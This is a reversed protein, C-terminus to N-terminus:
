SNPAPSNKSPLEVLKSNLKEILFKKHSVYLNLNTRVMHPTQPMFMEKPNLILELEKNIDTLAQLYGKAQDRGFEKELKNFRDEDISVDSNSLNAGNASFDKFTTM